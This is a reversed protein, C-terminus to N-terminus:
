KCYTTGFSTGDMHNTTTNCRVKRDRNSPLNTGSCASLISRGVTMEHEYKRKKDKRYDYSNTNSYSSNIKEAKNFHSMALQKEAESCGVTRERYRTNGLNNQQAQVMTKRAILKTGRCGTDSFTYSGNAQKCKSITAAKAYSIPAILLLATIILIPKSTIGNM